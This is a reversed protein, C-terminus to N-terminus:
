ILVLSSLGGSGPQILRRGYLIRAQHVAKRYVSSPLSCLASSFGEAVYAGQIGGLRLGIGTRGKFLISHPSPVKRTKTDRFIVILVFEIECPHLSWGM